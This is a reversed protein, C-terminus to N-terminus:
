CRVVFQISVQTVSGVEKMQYIVHGMSLVVYSAVQAVNEVEQHIVHTVLLVVKSVVQAVNEIEQHIVHAVLLVM